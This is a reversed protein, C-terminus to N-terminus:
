AQTSVFVGTTQLLLTSLLRAHVTFVRGQPRSSVVEAVAELAQDILHVRQGPELATPAYFSLGSISLDRWRVPLAPAPWGVHLMAVHAQDRRPASRRGLLEHSQSGPEPLAALPANCQGCRSDPRLQLPTPHGCLPCHREAQLGDARPGHGAARLARDYAARRLPDSLVAWADNVMAAEATNGGLDPHGRLRGMMTRYSARIVEMPAEPQVHLVRYHNRRNHDAIATAIDTPETM